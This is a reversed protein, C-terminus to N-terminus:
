SLLIDYPYVQCMAFTNSQLLFIRQYATNRHYINFVFIWSKNIKIEPKANDM